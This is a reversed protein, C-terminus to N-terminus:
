LRHAAHSAPVCCIPRCGCAISLIQSGLCAGDRTTYVASSSVGIGGADELLVAVELEAEVAGGVGEAGVVALPVALLAFAWVGGAGGGVVPSLALVLLAPLPAAGGVGGVECAEV